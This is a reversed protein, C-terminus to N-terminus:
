RVMAEVIEVHGKVVQDRLRERERDGKELPPALSLDSMLPLRRGAIVLENKATNVIIPETTPKSVPSKVTKSRYALPRGM